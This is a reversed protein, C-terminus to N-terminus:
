RLVYNNLSVPDSSSGSVSDMTWFRGASQSLYRARLYYLSLNPDNQEGSYLYVNPTTGAQSNINGFADYDYRDTIAGTTDTLVRVNGHGDYGYFSIGSTQSQSIRNLGYSYVRQVTAGSLEELVQSYGTLNRDDVLYKTTTAGVTKAVRNGDGDYIITVANGNQRTLHNEFDYAYTSGSSATTNGDSDYTDSQLRDNADYTYTAPPVPGVTSTRTLRNGVDDYTYGISGNVPGGAITEGTLRYLADYTYSVQRGGSETVATRNGAAGLTYGYSAITAGNSLTMNTLRNLANYSFGSQVGNPYLYSQLNGANDYTYTTTGAALRNDTVSSLRNLADYAYDVSTGGTNSSRISQLDGAADYTYTLTGQPTVKKLLRDRLDYTYNSTGSADTMSNRQSSLTYTFQIASQSFSPDPTKTVLRNVADYTYTTMKGNFDIKSQLNGAGDYNSTEVMGLPLTRKTRRGLKDYAFTTTHGNADTQTLRNGVEDYTYKTLKGLADTVQVLRGIKDYAYQTMRGAQDTKGTTRGLADYSTTDSTTDAYIVNTRRNTNDYQYQTARGNADTMSVQNGVADYAFGTTHSLADIVATRRGAADYQYQTTNGRQDKAVTVRGASDYTTQTATLDAYTTKTLRKLADYVYNTNRSARDTSTIRDGEADYTSSETTGDAYGTQTLRGMADYKYSTQHGLQDTTISQKGIANYQVQTTSGDPYTTKTLRNMADYQYSTLLTEPGSAGTRTQSQTLRNGNSDYAYTTINGLADTQQTVNGAGDYQYGTVGGLPDTMSTRLGAANYAYTTSNGSADKSSILNGAGDYTNTSVHGLADTVTLAQNRSNYTYTTTHNLADTETLRNNNADYTYTRTQTLPNTETLVNSRADYTRTTVGGVADTVKVINGSTDYENVTINNLRDTIVEQQTNLNHTYNITNGFADIHQILRGNNDYVNKIPQIGRPDVITLLGHNTDYTFTATNAAADNVSTLNNTGDYGYLIANGNPDTIKTIHGTQDRLFSVSKGSSHTIGASTVTLKNGNLDTMSQLGSSRSIQLVRGDPLTLLYQDPDFSAFTNQDLLSVPGPVSGTVLPQTGGLIALSANSPTIGIPSFTMSVPEDQIPVLQRCQPNTASLFQYTTDDSFSVTVQHPKAAQICYTPFAGGSSTENWNDGLAGNISLQVTKLDLNWGVGFDGALKNRSDYTRVVQIPLGAVPVTLDNFSVTFNGIKQNGTVVVTIPGAISTQGSIDTARLQILANGNLLLTPDFTGLVANSVATTGTAIQRFTSENQLRFELTWSTLSSSAVSGVVNTLTSISTGETPSTISVTPPPPLTGTVTVTINQTTTLQSDTASIQLVYTGAQDFGVSVSTPTQNQFGVNGPGSVTSWTVTLVGGSPLGDDTVTYTVNLRGPLTLSWTPAITIVPAQNGPPNVGFANALTLVETGTTVTLTRFGTAANAAISLKASVHTTDAATIASATIGTGLDITSANTFHTNQGVITLSLNTQGQQGNNPTISLLAPPGVVTFGAKLLAFESGTTVAVDRVAVTANAAVNVVATLHTSDTVNMSAISVGAGGLDLASTSQVFHTNQGVVTVSLNQQGVQASNPTISNIIFPAVVTFGNTFPAIEAGTKAQVTRPGPTAAPNVVIQATASTPGSVTVPGFGGEAAGGVSIGPGFSAQTTGQVFHTLQGTITVPVTQNQYAGGPDLSLILTGLNVTFANTASVVETGTTVTVTRPGTAANEAITIQATLSTVSAVTVTGVTIGAGFDVTSAGQAFHTSQGTITVPLTQAQQGSAPAPTASILGSQVSFINAVTVVETGTTIVPTRTGITAALDISIQASLSTPSNVTVSTLTIGAGLSVQTTGQAWHTFQGTFAVSLSQGQRGSAPVMSTLIPTGPQVTFGNALTAVETGTTVTVTRPGIAATDSIAVQVTLCTPCTVTVNSATVGPGLDLVSTGQVFHTNLGVVTVPGGQGQQGVNPSITTISPLAATIVFGGALAFMEAGTTVTVTNPGLSAGSAVSIQATLSTASTVSVTLTTIGAGFTVQTTGQSFHSNLASVTVTLSQGQQASAPSVYLLVPSTVSQVLFGSPVALDLTGTRITVPRVAEAAAPDIYLTAIATTPSTVAIPGFGGVVGGGVSIASGFSAQTTGPVFNTGDGTITVAVSSGPPGLAPSIMASPTLASSLVSFGSPLSVTETSTQVTAARPGVPASLLGAKLIWTDNRTTLISPFFNTDEGGFLILRDTVHDYAAGAPYNYRSPPPTPFPGLKAWVPQGGLGNANTLLYSNVVNGGDCVVLMRNTAQDYASAVAQTESPAFGVASVQSWAPQGGLGNANNLVWVDGPPYPKGVQGGFMILRNRVQDYVASAYNRLGPSPGSPALQTWTPAGGLGNANSLVWVDGLNGFCNSGGVIVMRNTAQDYVATHDARAGPTGAPSLQQWAPTGGRGSANSLVWTESSCPSSSGLYGGFVIMRDTTDDYVASAAARPSPSGGQVAVSSWSSPGTGNANSIRWVDNYHSGVYNDGGFLIAQNGVKDYVLTQGVRTAPLQGSPSMQMWDTRESISLQATASTPTNVSIPGFGGAAAGGVSIGDGFSAASLGQSFSTFQGTLNVLLNQQGQQGTNPNVMTLVPTGAAVSFGNGLTAVETGTMMTVTRAGVVATPDINLVATASTASNVTLSTATIGAGFNATTAGQVWHTNQGILSVSVSQQGQQVASPTSSLIASPPSVTITVSSNASLQSDSGTLVLTYTGPSGFAATTNVPYVQGAVDPFSATPDSFLVTGTRQHREM